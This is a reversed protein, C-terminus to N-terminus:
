IVHLFRATYHGRNLSSLLITADGFDAVIMICYQMKITWEPFVGLMFGYMVKTEVKFM